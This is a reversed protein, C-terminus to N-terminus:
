LPLRYLGGGEDEFGLRTLIRVQYPEPQVAVVDDANFLRLCHLIQHFVDPFLWLRRDQPDTAIHIQARGIVQFWHFWILSRYDLVNLVVCPALGETDWDDAYPYEWFKLTNAVRVKDTEIVVRPRTRSPSISFSRKPRKM